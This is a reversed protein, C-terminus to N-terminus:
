SASISQVAYGISGARQPLRKRSSDSFLDFIAVITVPFSAWNLHVTRLLKLSGFLFSREGSLAFSWTEKQKKKKAEKKNHKGKEFWFRLFISTLFRVGILLSRESLCQDALMLM